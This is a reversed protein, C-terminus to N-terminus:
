KKQLIYFNEKLIDDVSSEPQYNYVTSLTFYNEKNLLKYEPLHQYFSDEVVQCELNEIRQQHFFDKLRKFVPTKLVTADYSVSGIYDGKNQSLSFLNFLKATKSANLFFLVGEILIFSSSDNTLNKIKSLVDQEFESNFDASIYHIERKPLLGQSYWQNIQNQKHEVIEPKDIEIHVMEEPFLFPYMSFGCGFNILVQVKNNGHLQRIQDLFYRNRVCHTLPEEQSVASLYSQIWKDTKKNNWLRSFPDGSLEENFSRFTSTVFATEHVDVMM